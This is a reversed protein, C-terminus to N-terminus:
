SWPVIHHFQRPSNIDILLNSILYKLILTLTLQQSLQSSILCPYNCNGTLSANKKERWFVFCKDLYANKFDVRVLPTSNLNSYIGRGGISHRWCCLLAGRLGVIILKYVGIETKRSYDYYVIDRRSRCM